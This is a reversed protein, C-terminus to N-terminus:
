IDEEPEDVQPNVKIKFVNEIGAKVFYGFVCAKLMDHLDDILTPLAEYNDSITMVVCAFTIGIFYFISCAVVLRKSFEWLWLKKNKIRKM